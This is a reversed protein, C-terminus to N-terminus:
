ICTSSKVGFNCLHIDLLWTLFTSISVSWFMTYFPSIDFHLICQEGDYSYTQYSQYTCATFKVGKWTIVRVELISADMIQIAKHKELVEVKFTVIECM